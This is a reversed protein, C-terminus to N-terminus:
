GGVVYFSHIHHKIYKLSVHFHSFYFSHDHKQHCESKKGNARNAINLADTRFYTIVDFGRRLKSVAVNADIPPGVIPAKNKEMRLTFFRKSNKRKSKLKSRLRSDARYLSIYKKCTKIALKIKKASWDYFNVIGNWIDQWLSSLSNAMYKCLIQWSDKFAILGIVVAIAAVTAILVALMFVDDVGTVKGNIDKKM